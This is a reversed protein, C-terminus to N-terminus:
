RTSMGLVASGLGLASLLHWAAHLQVISDPRCLPSGTRGAAYAALAVTGLAGATWWNRAIMRTARRRRGRAALWIANGALVLALGAVSGDHVPAAWAPQPGHYAVSGLGVGAIATGTTVLLGRESRHEAARRLLWGGVVVYGLSSVTNVPQALWGAGIRECDAGGLAALIM